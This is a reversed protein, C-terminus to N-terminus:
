QNRPPSPTRDVIKLKLRSEGTVRAQVCRRNARSVVASIIVLGEGAALREPLSLDIRAEFGETDAGAAPGCLTGAPMEHDPPRCGATSWGWVKWWVARDPHRHRPARPVPRRDPSGSAYTAVVM